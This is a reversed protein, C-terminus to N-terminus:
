NFRSQEFPQDLEPVSGGAFSFLDSWDVGGEDDGEEHQDHLTLPILTDMTFDSIKPLGPLGIDGHVDELEPVTMAYANEAYAASSEATAEIRQRTAPISKAAAKRKRPRAAAPQGKSESSTRSRRQSASPRRAAVYHGRRAPARPAQPGAAAPAAGESDAGKFNLTNHEPHVMSAAAPLSTDSPSASREPNSALMREHQQVDEINDMDKAEEVLVNLYGTTGHQSERM